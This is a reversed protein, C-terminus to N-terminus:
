IIKGVGPVPKKNGVPGHGTKIQAPQESVPRTTPAEKDLAKFVDQSQSSTTKVLIDDVGVLGNLAEQIDKEIQRKEVPSIGDRNYQAVLKQGELGIHEWRNEQQFTKGTAPNKIQQLKAKITEIMIFVQSYLHTLDKGEPSFCPKM